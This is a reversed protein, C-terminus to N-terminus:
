ILACFLGHGYITSVSPTQKTWNADDTNTSRISQPHLFPDFPMFQLGFYSNTYCSSIIFLTFFLSFIFYFLNPVLFRYIYINYSFQYVYLYDIFTCCKRDNIGWNAFHQACIRNVYKCLPMQSLSYVVNVVCKSFHFACPTVFIPRITISPRTNTDNENRNEREIYVQQRTRSM